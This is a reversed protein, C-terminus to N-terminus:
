DLLLMLIPAISRPRAAVAVASSAASSGAVNQATLTCSYAVNRTLGGVSIPSGAGTGTAPPQGSAACTATYGTIPSGGDGPATFRITAGTAGRVISTITPPAPVTASNFTATVSRTAGMSVTCSAAAGSCDGGWGAFISGGAPAAALTVSEGQYYSESCDAGCAIGATTSTVTGSGTGARAVLLDTKNLWQYLAAGFARDFRGYDDPANPTDCYSQGGHLTGILYHTGLFLGSGSSGGETVGGSWVVSYHDASAPSSASCSYYGGGSDVCTEYSQLGGFSIKQLDGSPHHIGTVASGLSPLGSDWGAFVAGAPPSGNLRMFSTDTSVNQYLLTAGGSLQTSGPYLSGSNCASARYLWYTTLTSAETQTSICHNAGLFYPISTATDKDNLLTGSCLYSQGGSSFLMRAVAKSENDWAAYCTTDLNCAGSAREGALRSHIPAFLHSVQPLAIEVDRTEAGPPLEIELVSESGEVPPSWYTRGGDGPDGARINRDVIDLVTQGAVEVATDGGAAYFRLIAASPLKGVLLGVRVGLADPSVISVAAIKGGQPTREWDLLAVTEPFGGLSRVERGVGVQLPGPTRRPQAAALREAPLPDLVVRAARTVGASRPRLVHSQVAATEPM